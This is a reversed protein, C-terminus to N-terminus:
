DLSELITEYYHFPNKFAVLKKTSHVYFLRTNYNHEFMQLVEDTTVTKDPEFANILQWELKLEGAKLQNFIRNLSKTQHRPTKM